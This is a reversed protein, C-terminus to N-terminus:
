PKKLSFFMTSNTKMVSVSINNGNTTLTGLYPQWNAPTGAGAAFAQNGNGLTTAYFLGYGAADTSWTVLVSGDEQSAITVTPQAQEQQV